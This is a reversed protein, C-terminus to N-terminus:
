GKLHVKLVRAAGVASATRFRLRTAIPFVDANVAIFTNSAGTVSIATGGNDFAQAWNPDDSEVYVTLDGGDYGPPFLIGIGAWDGYDLAESNREGSNITLQLVRRQRFIQVDMAGM